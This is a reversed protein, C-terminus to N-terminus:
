KALIKKSIEECKDLVFVCKGELENFARDFDKPKTLIGPLKPIQKLLWNRALIIEFKIKNKQAFKKNGEEAAKNIIGITYNRIIEMGIYRRRMSQYIAVVESRMSKGDDLEVDEPMEDKLKKLNQRQESIDIGIANAKKAWAEIAFDVLRIKYSSYFLEEGEKELEGIFPSNESNAFLVLDKKPKSRPSPPSNDDSPPPPGEIPPPPPSFLSSANLRDVLSISPDLVFTSFFNQPNQSIVSSFNKRTKALTKSLLEHNLQIPKIFHETFTPSSYGDIYSFQFYNALPQVLEVYKFFPDAQFPIDSSFPYGWLTPRQGLEQM